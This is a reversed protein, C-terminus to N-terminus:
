ALDHSYMYICTTGIDTASISGQSSFKSNLLCTIRSMGIMTEIYGDRNGGSQEIASDTINLNVRDM